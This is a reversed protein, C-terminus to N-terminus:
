HTEPPFSRVFLLMLSWVCKKVKNNGPYFAGTVPASASGAMIHSLSCQPTSSLRMSILGTVVVKSCLRDAVGEARKFYMTCDSACEGAFNTRLMGKM